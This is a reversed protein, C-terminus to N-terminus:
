TSVQCVSYPISGAYPYLFVKQMENNSHDGECGRHLSPDMGFKISIKLM